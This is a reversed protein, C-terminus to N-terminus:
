LVWQRLLEDEKLAGYLYAVAKYAEDNTRERELVRQYAVIARRAIEVNEPAPSGPKYQAHITRADGSIM